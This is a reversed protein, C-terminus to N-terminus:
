DELPNMGYIQVLELLPSDYVDRPTVVIGGDSDLEYGFQKYAYWILHSCYTGSVPVQTGATLRYPVGVLMKEAYDAIKARQEKSVNEMRLVAFSPCDYWGRISRIASNQGLTSAEVTLGQEADVVIAAHGNRWGLFHSNFTILIDGDELVPMVIDRPVALVENFLLFDRECCTKEVAFFRKQAMLLEEERNERRLADVAPLALGTQRYLLAYDEETLKEQKLYVSIDEMPYTPTYRVSEEASYVWLLLLFTMPVAVKVMTFVTRRVKGKRRRKVM